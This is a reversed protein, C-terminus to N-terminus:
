FILRVANHSSLIFRITEPHYHEMVDRITFFNGLSKSMKEGDVNIFGVHMWSNAYTCGDRKARPLRTKTIRFSCIHGHIYPKALVQGHPLVDIALRLSRRGMQNEGPEGAATKWLVFDFPNRKDTEVEVRSGAQMSLNRKSLKGYDDFKRRCLIRLRTQLMLLNKKQLTDILRLMEDIHETAKPEVVSSAGLNDADEHM